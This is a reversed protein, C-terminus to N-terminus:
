AAFRNERNKRRKRRKKRPCPVRWKSKQYEKIQNISNYVIIRAKKLLKKINNVIYKFLRKVPQIFCKKVVDALKLAVKDSHKKFLVVILILAILFAALEYVRMAGEQFVLNTCVFLMVSLLCLVIDFISRLAGKFPKACLFLACVGAALGAAFSILFFRFQAGFAIDHYYM